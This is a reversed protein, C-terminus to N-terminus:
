KMWRTLDKKLAIKWVIRSSKPDVTRTLGREDEMRKVWIAQPKKMPLGARERLETWTQGEPASALVREVKEGFDDFTMHRDIQRPPAPQLRLRDKGVPQLSIEQGKSWGRSAVLDPPIVVLYKVYEKQGIRRSIRAQLTAM